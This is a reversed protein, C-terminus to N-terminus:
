VALTGAKWVAVSVDTEDVSSAVMWEAKESVGDCEMLFALIGDM